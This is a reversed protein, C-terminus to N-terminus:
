WALAVGKLEGESEAERERETSRGEWAMIEERSSYNMWGRLSQGTTGESGEERV